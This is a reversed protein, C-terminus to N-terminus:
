DAFNQSAREIMHALAQRLTSIDRPLLAGSTLADANDATAGTKVGVQLPLRREILPRIQEPLLHYRSRILELYEILQQGDRAAKLRMDGVVPLSFRDGPVLIANGGVDDNHDLSSDKGLTQWPLHAQGGHLWVNLLLAITAMNSTNDPNLSGYSRLNVGTELALTRCRRYQTFAGTGFYVPGVLHDLVRGQWQPRSIDARGLWQETNRTPIHTLGSQWHRHFFQLALWDDWHYPEDTTWWMNSGYDLRHTNKGGYFAHMETQNWEKEQFHEIFQRQAAHIGNRYNASLADEMNPATLYHQILSERSDGRQPWYGKYHYTDKSLPVPWSDEFPLYMTRVPRGQRRNDKFAEGSLLPGALRDYETFDLILDRGTGRTKPRMVWPMFVARHQHALRFYEHVHKQPVSYSNLETWFSLRDPLEFDYVTLSIPVHIPHAGDVSVTVQGEYFGPTATKPVYVDVYITQNTQTTLGRQPDPIAFHTSHPIPITYAPQWQQDANQAYWNKYLEIDSLEIASQGPGVLRHPSISIDRLSAATLKEVCLQYSVYEGRGGFLHIRTGDFVANLQRYQDPNQRGLYLPIAHEPDIKILGPLAWIRFRADTPSVAPHPTIQRVNPLSPSPPLSPSTRASITTPFSTSGGPGIATVQLTGSESPLLDELYFVTPGEPEPHKVRWREVPIGKWRLKWSFVFPDHQITVRLAGSNLHAREPAPEVTVEPIAPPNNLPEGLTVALYPGRNGAEQSYFYNNHFAPNGGDVVALGDSDQAILAYVLEPTVAISIWGDPEEQLLAWAALSNGSTMIVDAFHSGEWAWPKVPRSTARHWTAGDKRFSLPGSTGEEWDQNITSVRVRHMRHPGAPKLLLKASVVEHGQIASVDFRIAAMEQISKLKFQNRTGLPTQREKENADSLWIDAIAPLRVTESAPSEAPAILGCLLLIAAGLLTCFCHAPYPMRFIMLDQLRAPSRPQGDHERSRLSYRIKM